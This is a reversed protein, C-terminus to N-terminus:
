VDQSRLSILITTGKNEESKFSITAHEVMKIRALTNAIGVKTTDTTHLIQQLHAKTMGIGDDCIAIQVTPGVDEITIKLKGGEKRKLIGHVISNEVLTQLALTPILVPQTARNDISIQLRHEFRMREIALYAEVLEMEDELPVLEQKMFFDLKARFYTTLHILGDSVKEPQEYSLGILTNMTNYLFHPSIQAIYYRLEKKSAELATDKIALFLAVKTQLVTADTPNVLYDNIQLDEIIDNPLNQVHSMLLIPLQVMDHQERIKRALQDGSMTPMMVDILALDIKKNAIVALADQASTVAIISYGMPQLQRLTTLLNTRDDDVLLITTTNGLIFYNCLPQNTPKKTLEAHQTSPKAIPLQLLLTTGENIKSTVIIDGGAQTLLQKTITLGLGLHNPTPNAQYFTTFIHPLDKTNIGQGTDTISLQIMKANLTKAQVTITGESTFRFANNMVAHIIQQFHQQVMLIAPLDHPISQVLTIAENRNIYHLEKILDTIDQLAIAVPNIAVAQSTSAVQLDLVTQQMRKHVGQVTFLAHQQAKIVGGFQGELINNIILNAEMLPQQLEDSAKHLFENKLRNQILLDQTVTALAQENTYYHEAILAAFSVIMILLSLPAFSLNIEFFFNLVFALLYIIFSLTALLIYASDIKKSFIMVSCIYIIQLYAPLVFFILALQGVLIPVSLGLAIQWYLTSYWAIAFCLLAITFRILRAPLIKNYLLTIFRYFLLTAILLSTLQLTTLVKISLTGSFLEFLREGLLSQYFAQAIAFLSFYSVHKHSSRYFSRFYFLGIALFGIIITAELVTKLYTYRIIENYDGFLPPQVLGTSPYSNNAVQIVIDLMRDDSQAVGIYKKANIQYLSPDTSPVGSEGVLEGNIYMRNAYRIDGTRIAYLADQAVTIRLRYTAVIMEHDLQSTFSSPVTIMQAQHEYDIFANPQTPDILINPYVLWDGTLAVVDTTTADYSYHGKSVIPSANFFVVAYLM